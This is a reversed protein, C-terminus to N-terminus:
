SRSAMAWQEAESIRAMYAQGRDRVEDKGVSQRVSQRVVPWTDLFSTEDTNVWSVGLGRRQLSQACAGAGQCCIADSSRMFRRLFHTNNYFFFLMTCNRLLAVVFDCLLLVISICYFAVLRFM